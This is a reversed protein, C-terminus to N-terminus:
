ALNGFRAFDKFFALQVTDTAGHRHKRFILEAQGRNDPNPNYYEDRYLFAVIDADQEIAGSERLDSLLPRKDQRAECQRSLQSLAIVPVELDKAVAKLDRSIKSVEQQRNESKDTGTMLQLYDIIILDLRKEKAIINRAKAKIDFVTSGSKDDVFIKKGILKDASEKVALWENRSLMGTRYRNSDVKAMSCILRDACQRKSMELSFYAVVADPDADTVGKAIDLSLASKGMSPRAAIIILDTQQLGGTLIDIDRFNTKLGLFGVGKEARDKSDEVSAFVLEGLEQPQSGRSGERMEYMKQEVSDIILAVDETESVAEKIAENCTRIFQRSLSKTRIVEVYQEVDFGFPIGTMLATVESVAIEIGQTKLGEVVALPTLPLGESYFSLLAGYIARLRPTYFDEVVLKEAVSSMNANDLLVSGILTREADTNSPLEKDLSFM